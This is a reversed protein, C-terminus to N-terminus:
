FSLEVFRPRTNGQHTVVLTRGDLVARVQTEPGDIVLWTALTRLDLAVVRDSSLLLHHGGLWRPPAFRLASVAHRDAELPTSHVREGGARDRVRLSGDADAQIFHEGGPSAHVCAEGADALTDQGPQWRRHGDPTELLLGDGSWLRPTVAEAHQVRSLLRQGEYVRLENEWAIALRAGDPSPLVKANLFPFEDNSEVIVDVKRTKLDVTVVQWAGSAHAAGCAALHGHVATAGTLTRELDVVRHPKKNFDTWAFVSAKSNLGLLQSAGEVLRLAEGGRLVEPVSSRVGPPAHERPAVGEGLAIRAAEWFVAAGEGLSLEASHSTTRVTLAAECQTGAHGLELKFERWATGDRDLGTDSQVVPFAFPRLEGAPQACPHGLDALFARSKRADRSFLSGQGAAEVRSGDVLRIVQLEAEGNTTKLTFTEILRRHATARTSALSLKLPAASV